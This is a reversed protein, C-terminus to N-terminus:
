QRMDPFYGLAPQAPVPSLGPACLLTSGNGGFTADLLPFHFDTQNKGLANAESRLSAFPSAVPSYKKVITILRLQDADHASAIAAGPWENSM